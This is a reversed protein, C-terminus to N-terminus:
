KIKSIHQQSEMHAKIATVGEYKVTFETCCSLCKAKYDDVKSLWDKYDDINLWRDQFRSFIKKSKKPSFVLKRKSAM